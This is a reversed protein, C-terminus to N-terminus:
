WLTKLGKYKTFNRDSGVLTIEEELATAIIMRDFPDPHHLPMSLMRNAHRHNFAVHRLAFDDVLKDLDTPIMRIKGTQIKVVIEAISVSSVFRESYPDDLVRRVRPSIAPADQTGILFLVQTDLLVRL